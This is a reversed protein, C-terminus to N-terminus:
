LYPSPPTPIRFKGVVLVWIRTLRTIPERLVSLDAGHVPHSRLASVIGTHVETRKDAQEAEKPVLVAVTLVPFILLVRLAFM